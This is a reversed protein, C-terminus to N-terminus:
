VGFEALVADLDSGDSGAADFGLKGEAFAAGLLTDAVGVHHLGMFYGLGDDEGTELGGVGADKLESDAM